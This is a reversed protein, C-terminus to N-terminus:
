DPVNCCALCAADFHVYRIRRVVFVLTLITSVAFSVLVIKHDEYWKAEKEVPTIDSEILLFSLNNQFFIRIKECKISLFMFSMMVVAQPGDM